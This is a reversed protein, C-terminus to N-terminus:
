KMSRRLRRSLTRWVPPRGMGDMQVAMPETGGLPTVRSRRRPNPGPFEHVRPFVGSRDMPESIDHKNVRRKQARGAQMVHVSYQGRVPVRPAPRPNRFMDLGVLGNPGSSAWSSVGEGRARAEMRRRNEKMMKVFGDHSLGPGEEAKEMASEDFRVRKNQQQQQQPQCAPCECEAVWKGKQAATLRRTRRAPELVMSKSVHNEDERQRRSAKPKSTHKKTPRHQREEPEPIPIPDLASPPVTMRDAAPSKVKSTDCAAGRETEELGALASDRRRSNEPEPCNAQLWELLESLTDASDSSGTGKNRRQGEEKAPENYKSQCGWIAANSASEVTSDNSDGAGRDNVGDQRPSCERLIALVSDLVSAAAIPAVAHPSDPRPSNPRMEETTRMLPSPDAPQALQEVSKMTEIMHLPTARRPAVYDCLLILENRCREEFEGLSRNGVKTYDQAISNLEKICGINQQLAKIREKRVEEICRADFDAGPSVAKTYDCKEIHAVHNTNEPSIVGDHYAEGMRVISSYRGFSKSAALNYLKRQMKEEFVPRWDKTNHHPEAPETTKAMVPGSEPSSGAPVWRWFTNPWRVRPIKNLPQPAEKATALHSEPKSSLLPSSGSQHEYPSMSANLRNVFIAQSIPPYSIM